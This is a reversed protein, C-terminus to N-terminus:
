GTEGAGAEVAPRADARLQLFLEALIYIAALRQIVMPAALVWGDSVSDSIMLASYPWLLAELGCRIALCIVALRSNWVYLFLMAALAFVFLVFIAPLFDPSELLLFVHWAFLGFTISLAPALRRKSAPFTFRFVLYALGWWVAPSILPNRIVASGIFAAMAIILLVAGSRILTKM